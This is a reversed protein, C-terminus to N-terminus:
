LLMRLHYSGGLFGARRYFAVTRPWADADPTNVQPRMM